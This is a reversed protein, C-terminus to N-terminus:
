APEEIRGIAALGAELPWADANRVAAVGGGKLSVAGESDDCDEGM